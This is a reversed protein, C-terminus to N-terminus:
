QRGAISVTGKAGSPITMSLGLQDLRGADQLDRALVRVDVGDAAVPAEIVLRADAQDPVMMGTGPPMVPHRMFRILLTDPLLRAAEFGM